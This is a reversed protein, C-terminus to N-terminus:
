PGRNETLNIPHNNQNNIHAHNGPSFGGGEGSLQPNNQLQVLM